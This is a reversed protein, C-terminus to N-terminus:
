RLLFARIAHVGKVIELRFGDNGPLRVYMEQIAVPLPLATTVIVTLPNGPRQVRRISAGDPITVRAKFAFAAGRKMDAGHQLADEFRQSFYIEHSADARMSGQDLISLVKDAETGHFFEYETSM